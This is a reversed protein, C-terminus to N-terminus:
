VGSLCSSRVSEPLRECLATKMQPDRIYQRINSALQADCASRVTSDMVQACYRFSANPDNEGGWFVSDLGETVCAVIGDQVGAGECWKIAKAYVPDDLQDIRRIDRAAALPVFEKGFGGFCSERLLDAQLRDCYAFADKFLNPDPLGLDIGAAAWFEPTIYTFCLPRAYDPITASMCFEMPDELYKERAALWLNRDHGGGGTLEMVAGGVCEIAERNRYEPTGTKTCLSVTEPLSYGYFAFVGHGLGHYCMTYAGAGGPAKLCAERIQVLASEGFETLAGVVISHSCANRFDQTCYKIGDIGEQEYLIDGVRHGMLHLDTNPPIDARKLIEFAYAAGKERSLTEFRRALDEFSQAGQAISAAEAYADQKSATGFSYYLGGLLLVAAVAIYYTRGM